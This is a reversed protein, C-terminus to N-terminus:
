GHLQGRVAGAPFQTTHLNVYYGGPNAVIDAALKPDSVTLTGGTARSGGPRPSMFFPVVVPGNVGAPGRHIHGLIPAPINQWRLVFTIQSGHVIVLASGTGDPDAPPVENAGSLQATLFHPAGTGPSAAAQAPAAGTLGVILAVVPLALLRKLM